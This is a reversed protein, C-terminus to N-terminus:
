YAGTHRQHRRGRPEVAASAFFPDPACQASRGSATANCQAMTAYGCESYSAPGHVQLCIPYNTALAPVAGVASIASIALLGLMASANRM